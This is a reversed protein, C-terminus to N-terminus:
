TVPFLDYFQLKLKVFSKWGPAQRQITAQIWEIHEDMNDESLLDVYTVLASRAVDPQERQQRLRRCIIIFSRQKSSTFQSGDVKAANAQKKQIWHRPQMREEHPEGKTEHSESGLSEWIPRRAIHRQRSSMAKSALSDVAQRVAIPAESSMDAKTWYVIWMAFITVLSLDNSSTNQDIQSAGAMWLAPVTFCFLNLAFPVRLQPSEILRKLVAAQDLYGLECLSALSEIRLDLAQVLDLYEGSDLIWPVNLNLFEDDCSGDTMQMNALGM